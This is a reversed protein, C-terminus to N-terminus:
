TESRAHTAPKGIAVTAVPVGIIPLTTKAALAGSLYAAM